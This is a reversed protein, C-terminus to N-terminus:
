VCLKGWDFFISRYRVILISITSWLPACFQDDLPIRKEEKRNKRQWAMRKAHFVPLTGTVFVALCINGTIGATVGRTVLESEICNHKVVSFFSCPTARDQGEDENKARYFTGRRADRRPFNTECVPRARPFVATAHWRLFSSSRFRGAYETSLRSYCNHEFRTLKQAYRSFGIVSLSALHCIERGKNTERQYKM